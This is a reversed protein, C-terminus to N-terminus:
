IKISIKEKKNSRQLSSNTKFDSKLSVIEAKSEEIIM